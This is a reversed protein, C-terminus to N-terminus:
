LSGGGGFSISKVRAANSGGLFLVRYPNTNLAAYGPFPFIKGKGITPEWSRDSPHINLRCILDRLAVRKRNYYANHETTLLTTDIGRKLLLIIGM